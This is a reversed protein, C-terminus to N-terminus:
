LFDHIKSNKFEYIRFSPNIVDFTTLSPSIFQKHYIEENEDRLVIFSDYHSHAAFSGVITDKFRKLLM